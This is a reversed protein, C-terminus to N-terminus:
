RAAKASAKVKKEVDDILLFIEGRIGDDWGNVGDKTATVGKRIGELAKSIKRSIPKLLISQTAPNDLYLKMQTTMEGAQEEVRNSM